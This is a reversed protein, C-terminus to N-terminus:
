SKAHGQEAARRYWKVAETRDKAVGWENEYCVGLKYQADAHGLEAARRYWEVAKSRDQVVSLGYEFREGLRLMAECDNTDNKELPLSGDDTTSIGTEAMEATEATEAMGATKNRKDKVKKLFGVLGISRDGEKADKM